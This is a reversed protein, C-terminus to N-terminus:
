KRGQAKRYAARFYYSAALMGCAAAVAMMVGFVAKFFAYPSRGAFGTAAMLARGQQAGVHNLLIYFIANNLAIAAAMCAAAPPLCRGILVPLREMWGKRTFAWVFWSNWDKMKANKLMKLKRGSWIWAYSLFAFMALTSGIAYSWGFQLALPNEVNDSLNPDLMYILILGLSYSIFLLLPMKHEDKM